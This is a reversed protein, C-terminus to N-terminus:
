AHSHERLRSVLYYAGRYSLGTLRHIEAVSVRPNDALARLIAVVTEAGAKLSHLATGSTISFTHRCAKCRFQARSAVTSIADHGCAPCEPRGDPWRWALLESM